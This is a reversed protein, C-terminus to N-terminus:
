AASRAADHQAALRRWRAIFARLVRADTVHLGTLLAELDDACWRVTAAEVRRREDETM